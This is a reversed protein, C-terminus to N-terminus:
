KKIRKNKQLYESRWKWITYGVAILLSAIKLVNEINTFTIAIAVGHLAPVDFYDLLKEIKEQSM